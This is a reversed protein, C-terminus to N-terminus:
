EGPSKAMHFGGKGANKVIYMAADARALIEDLTENKEPDYMAIGVSIGLPHDADGSFKRMAQSAEILRNARNETVEPSIGDLWMGFEDGGLRAIVDGPRSMEMLLDRLSMIAEDGAQHGHIDNVQKFNDMDVYFLAATERNRELRLVRRPLEEELFARRNLLGTMGDTRSLAVIREHNSIQENAIGLQNAIDSILLHHDDEWPEDTSVKWISLAGNVSQRYNTSTALVQWKGISIEVVQGGTSLSNLQGDLKDLGEINGHEAATSFKDDEDRRYIRCGAVGLARATAAAAANLMNHPELEDRITSVIYNLHQERRRARALASENEREETVDRCVGRTGKWVEGGNEGAMLPVCSLIVCATTGDKNHMWIEINDLSRESVFPLPSFEEPSIVFDEAKKDILEEAKYGIAGRPSVFVFKGEPNVEWSFDSSVEVLDKYRQRSEVLATRLNREMTMDRAMVVMEGADGPGPVVSIELVIEGKASSLSVSGAAVSKASRAQEILSKIEPAAEHEILAELGAAKVNSCIVEGGAGVLLAAGPYGALLKQQAETANTSTKGSQGSNTEDDLKKRTTASRDKTM